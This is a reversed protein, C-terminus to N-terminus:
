LELCLFGCYLAELMEAQILPMDWLLPRVGRWREGLFERLSTLGQDANLEGKEYLYAVLRLACITGQCSGKGVRSRVGISILDPRGGQQHISDIISDVTSKPVMQCECILTDDPEHSKIWLRPTLGPKTWQAARASPLPDTRTQCASSIGLRRCVRDATKEAMLRYTTLKGGTITIFNELDDDEHDFLAFGRSVGRDDGSSKSGVLPRVGAYARIYRITELAPIMKAGEGVILDVEQVTPRIDDLSDIRVSTTGLISVTGGPVLIDANSSPRLRNV